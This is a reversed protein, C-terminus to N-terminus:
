RICVYCIGFFYGGTELVSAINKFTLNMSELNRLEDLGSFCCVNNHRKVDSLVNTSIDIHQLSHKISLSSSKEKKKIIETTREISELSSDVGTYFNIKSKLL